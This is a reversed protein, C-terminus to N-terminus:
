AEDMPNNSRFIRNYRQLNLHINQAIKTEIRTKISTTRFDDSPKNRTCTCCLKLGQKLPHRELIRIHRYGLHKM